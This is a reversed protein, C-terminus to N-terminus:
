GYRMARRIMNSASKGEVCVACTKTTRDPLPRGCNGCDGREVRERYIRADVIRSAERCGHCHAIGPVAQRRCVVCQGPARTRRLRQMKQVQEAACKACKTKVRPRKRCVPCIGLELLEARLARFYPRRSKSM